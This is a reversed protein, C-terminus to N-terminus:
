MQHHHTTGFTAFSACFYNGSSLASLDVFRDDMRQAAIQVSRCSADLAFQAM